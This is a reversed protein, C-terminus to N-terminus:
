RNNECSIVSLLQNFEDMSISTVDKKFTRLKVINHTPNEMRVGEQNIIFDFFLKVSTIHKNFYLPDIKKEKQWQYFLTMENKSIQSILKYKANAIKNDTVVEIFKEIHKLVSKIYADSREKKFQIFKGEGRFYSGFLDFSDSLTLQNSIRLKSKDLYDIKEIYQKFELFEYIAKQYNDTEFIKSRIGNKTGPIHIRGRFVKSHECKPNDKRCTKCYTKLGKIQYSVKKM